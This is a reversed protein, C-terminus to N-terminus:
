KKFSLSKRAVCTEKKAGLFGNQVRNQVRRGAATFQFFVRDNSFSLRGRRCKQLPYDYHLFFLSKGLVFV